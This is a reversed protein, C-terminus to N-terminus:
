RGQAVYIWDDKWEIERSFWKLIISGDAGQDEYNHRGKLSGLSFETHM